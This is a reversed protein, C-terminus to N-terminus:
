QINLKKTKPSFNYVTTKSKNQISARYTASITHVHNLSPICTGPLVKTFIHLEQVPRQVFIKWSAQKPHILRPSEQKGCEKLFIVIDNNRLNPDTPTLTHRREHAPFACACSVIARLM